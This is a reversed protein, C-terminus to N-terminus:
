TSKVHQPLPRRLSKSSRHAEHPRVVRRVACGIVLENDSAAEFKGLSGASQSSLLQRRDGERGVNKRNPNQKKTRKRKYQSHQERYQACLWNVAGCTMVGLSGLPGIMECVNM